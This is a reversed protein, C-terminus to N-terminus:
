VEVSLYALRTGVRYMNSHRTLIAYVVFAKTQGIGGPGVITPLLADGLLGAIQWVVIINWMGKSVCIGM